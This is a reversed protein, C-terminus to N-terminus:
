KILRIAIPYRYPEGANAKLGAIIVLVINVIAVILLLLFGIFVITLVMSIVAAILITIQFNLSEKGHQDIFPSSERKILWIILVIVISGFGAVFMGALAGLHCLMAWTREDRTPGAASAPQESVPPPSSANPQEPM